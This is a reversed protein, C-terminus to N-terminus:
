AAKKLPIAKLIDWNNRFQGVEIMTSTNGNFNNRHPALSIGKRGNIWQIPINYIVPIRFREDPLIVTSIFDISDSSYIVSKGKMVSDTNVLYHGGTKSEKFTAVKVQVRNYIGQYDVMCDYRGMDAEGSLVTINKLHAAFKFALEGATGVWKTNNRKYTHM